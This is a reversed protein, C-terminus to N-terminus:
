LKGVRLDLLLRKQPNKGVLYVAVQLFNSLNNSIQKEEVGM